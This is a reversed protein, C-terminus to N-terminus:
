GLRLREQQQTRAAKSSSERANPNPHGSSETKRKKNSPHTPEVLRQSSAARTRHDPHSTPICSAPRLRTLHPHLKTTPPSSAAACCVTYSTTPSTRTSAKREERPSRYWACVSQRERRREKAEEYPAGCEKRARSCECEKSSFLLGTESRSKVRRRFESLIFNVTKTGPM